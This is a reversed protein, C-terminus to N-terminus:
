PLEEEHTGTRTAPVRRARAVVLTRVAVFGVLAAVLREWHGDRALYVFAAVLVLFTGVHSQYARVWPQLLDPLFAGVAAIWPAVFCLRGSCAATASQAPSSAKDAGAPATQWATGRPPAWLVVGLVMVGIWGQRTM